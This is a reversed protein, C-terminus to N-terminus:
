NPQRQTNANERKRRTNAKQIDKVFDKRKVIMVNHECWGQRPDRMIMCYNEGSRGRLHWYGDWLEGWTDRDLNWTEGRYRAQSVSRNYAINMAIKRRDPDPPRGPSAM